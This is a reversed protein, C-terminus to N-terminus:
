TFSRGVAYSLIREADKGKCIGSQYLAFRIIAHVADYEMFSVANAPVM